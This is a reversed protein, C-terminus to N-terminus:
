IGQIGYIKGQRNPLNSLLQGGLILFSNQAAQYYGNIFGTWSYAKAVDSTKYEYINGRLLEGDYDIPKTMHFPLHFYHLYDTNIFYLTGTPVKKDRFVEMGGWMLGNASFGAGGTKTPNGENYTNRQFAQILQEIYAWSTYDSIM